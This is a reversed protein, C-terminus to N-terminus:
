EVRDALLPVALALDVAVRPLLLDALDDPLLVAPAV